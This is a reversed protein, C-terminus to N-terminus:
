GGTTTGCSALWELLQRASYRADTLPHHVPLEDPKRDGGVALLVNPDTVALVSTVDIIPYPGEWTRSPSMKVAYSLFNAEVPWPCDCVMVAGTNKHGLWWEWFRNVMEETGEEAGLGLHPLVNKTVFDRDENSAVRLHSNILGNWIRGYFTSVEVGNKFAVAGISIFPGHIGVSEVDISVFYNQWTM